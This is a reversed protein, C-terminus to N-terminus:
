AVVFYVVSIVAICVALSCVFTRRIGLRRSLLFLSLAFAFAGINGPIAGRVMEHAMLPSEAGALAITAALRVPLAAIVGGLFLSVSKAVLVALAVSFGGILFDALFKGLPM